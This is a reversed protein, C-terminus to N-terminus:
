TCQWRRGMTRLEEGTKLLFAAEKRGNKRDKPASQRKQATYRKEFAINQQTNTKTKFTIIKYFSNNTLISNQMRTIFKNTQKIKDKKLPNNIKKKYIVKSILYDVM